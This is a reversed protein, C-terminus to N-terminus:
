KKRTRPYEYSSTLPHGDGKEYPRFVAVVSGWFPVGSIPGCFPVKKRIFRIESAMMVYEHWWPANSRNPILCVVTAGLQAEDYAKKMWKDIGRGYPPNMWVINTGYWVKSLDGQNGATDKTYYYEVKHNEQTAAADLTFGFERNLKDFLEQPTGWEDTSKSETM